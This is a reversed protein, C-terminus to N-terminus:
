GRNSGGIDRRMHRGSFSILESAEYAQRLAQELSEGRATVGLIRGGNTVIKGDPTTQTGAHFVIVDRLGAAADLGSILDGYSGGAPYNGSAQVICVSFGPHAPLKQAFFESPHPKAVTSALLDELVAVLDADVQRLVSQCEPDGLRTNFELVVLDRGENSAVGEKDAASDKNAVCDKNAVSDPILLGAYLFGTFPVGRKSMELLVPEIVRAIIEQWRSDAINSTPTISGMGGTNPGTNGEGVRKYDHSTPFCRIQDGGVAVIFSCEVGRVFEEILINFTGTVEGQKPEARELQILADDLDEETLCVFVGKGSALGDRKLVCPVGMEAVQVKLDEWSRAVFARPTPVGAALMVEKSFVKSGELAAAQRTPGYIRLGHSQFLDVIGLCLPQEPGVVTLAVGENVALELLDQIQDQRIPVCRAVEAIGANGPACLVESVKHSQALAWCLAHERGGGGIVLVKM